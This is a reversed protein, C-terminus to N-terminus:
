PKSRGRLIATLVTTPNTKYNKSIMMKRAGGTNRFSSLERWAKEYAPRLQAAHRILMRYSRSEAVEAYAADQVDSEDADPGLKRSSV